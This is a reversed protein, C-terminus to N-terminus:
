SSISSYQGNLTKQYRHKLIDGAKGHLIRMVLMSEVKLQVRYWGGNGDGYVWSSIATPQGELVTMGTQGIEIAVLRNISNNSTM